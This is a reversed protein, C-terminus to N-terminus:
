CLRVDQQMYRIDRVSKTIGVFDDRKREFYKDLFFERAGDIKDVCYEELIMECNHESMDKSAMLKKGMEQISVLDPVPMANIETSNVQTSGNPMSDIYQNTREMIDDLM